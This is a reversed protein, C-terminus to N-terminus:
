PREGERRVLMALTNSGDAATAVCEHPALAGRNIDGGDAILLEINKMTSCERRSRDTGLSAVAVRGRTAGATHAAAAACGESVCISGARQATGVARYILGM